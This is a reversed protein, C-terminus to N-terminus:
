SVQDSLRETVKSSLCAQSSLVLYIQDTKSDNSNLIRGAPHFSKGRRLVDSKKTLKTVSFKRMSSVAICPQLASSDTNTIFNVGVGQVGGASM